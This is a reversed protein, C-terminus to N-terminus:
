LWGGSFGIIQGTVFESEDTCLYKILKAMENESSLRGLPVAKEVSARFRENTEFAKRPYTDDSTFYVPAIGFVSIGDRGLERALSTVMADAGARAAAYMTMRPMPRQGAASTVLVIRPSTGARLAPLAAHIFRYPQILLTELSSRFGETTTKSLPIGEPTQFHNCVLVDLTSDGLAKEVAGEPDIESIPLCGSFENEFEERAVADAFSVDHCYVSLGEALLARTADPGAYRRANTVLAKRM